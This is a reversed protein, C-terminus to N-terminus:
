EPNGVGESTTLGDGEMGALKPRPSVYPTPPNSKNEKVEGAYANLTKAIEGQKDRIQGTLKNIANEMAQVIQDPSGGGGTIEEQAKAATGAASGIAGLGATVM